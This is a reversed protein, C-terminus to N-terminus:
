FRIFARTQSSVIRCSKKFRLQVSAKRGTCVGQYQGSRFTWRLPRSSDPHDSGACLRSSQQVGGKEINSHNGAILESVARLDSSTFRRTELGLKPFSISAVRPSEAGGNCRGATIGSIGYGELPSSSQSLFRRRFSCSGLNRVRCGDKHMVPLGWSPHFRRGVALLREARQAIPQVIAYVSAAWCRLLSPLNQQLTPQLSFFPTPM